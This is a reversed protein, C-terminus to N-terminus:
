VDNTTNYGRLNRQKYDGIVLRVTTGKGAAGFLELNGGILNARERMGMLGFSTTGDLETELIGKGDDIIEISLKDERKGLLIQVSKADSHKAANTMAEQVIRFIALEMDHNLFLEESESTFVCNIKTSKRYEESYWELAAILGLKDLLEPRLQTILKRVQSVAKDITLNMLQFERLIKNKMEISNSEELERRTFAINMKLSTLVQGLEDHMERAISAREEERIKQLHASLSRYEQRSKQLEEFVRKRETIDNSVSLIGMRGNMLRIVTERLELNRCSGDKHINIVEHTLIKGSLIEIINNNIRSLQEQDVMIKINKGILEERTYGTTKCYADNVEIINGNTDEVIIGSPSLDFLARYHKKQNVLAEQTKKIYDINRTISLIHPIGKINLITASMLGTLSTGDKNLFQAELNDVRGNKKLGRVLKKRDNQNYWFNIELSSKGIVDEYTYGSLNTFGENIEIYEGDVLRNITISDPSIRFATRFREESARMAEEAEKQATIDEATNVLIFGRKTEIPTIIQRIILKKGNPHIFSREFFKRIYPAEGTKLLHQISSKMTEYAEASKDESTNMGYQIDWIFKGVVSQFSYGSIKELASNWETVRGTEDIISIGESANEIVSRFRAESERIAEEANKRGTIDRFIVLTYNDFNLYYSSVNVDMDFESGDKRFGVTEYISPVVEGKARRTVIDLIYERKGPAILDIIPKGVLEDIHSYGFLTLYAPNVFFHIGANLVCIADVSNAFVSRFKIESEILKQEVTTVEKLARQILHYLLLTTAIVFFCGKISSVLNQTEADSIFRFVLKDTFFIWFLSLVLYIAAIRFAKTSFLFKFSPNIKEYM